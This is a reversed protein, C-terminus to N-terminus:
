AKTQQNFSVPAIQQSFNLTTNTLRSVSVHAMCNNIFLLIKQNLAKMKQDIKRVWEEFLVNDIWANKHSRYTVLFLAM